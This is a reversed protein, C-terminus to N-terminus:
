LKIKLKRNNDNKFSINDIIKNYKPICNNIEDTRKKLLNGIFKYEVYQSLISYNIEKGEKELEHVEDYYTNLIFEKEEKKLNNDEPHSISNDMYNVIEIHYLMRNCDNYMKVLSKYLKPSGNYIQRDELLSIVPKAYEIILFEIDMIRSLEETKKTINDKLIQETNVFDHYHDYVTILNVSVILDVLAYREKIETKHLKIANDGSIKAGLYAGGFTAFLGAFSICMMIKDKYEIGQQITVFIFFVLLILGILTIFMLKKIKM